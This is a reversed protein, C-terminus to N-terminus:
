PLSCWPWHREHRTRQTHLISSNSMTSCQGLILKSDCRYIIPALTYVICGRGSPNALQTHTLWVWAVRLLGSVSDLARRIRSCRWLAVSSDRNWLLHAWLSSLSLSRTYSVTPTSEWANQKISVNQASGELKPESLMDPSYHLGNFLVESNQDMTKMRDKM